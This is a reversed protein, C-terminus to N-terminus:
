ICFDFLQIRGLGEGVLEPDVSLNSEEIIRAGEVKIRADGM